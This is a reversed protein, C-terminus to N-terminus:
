QVWCSRALSTFEAITPNKFDSYRSRRALSFSVAAHRPGWVSAADTGRAVGYVFDVDATLVPDNANSLAPLQRTGYLSRLALKRVPRQHMTTLGQHRPGDVNTRTSGFPLARTMVLCAEPVAFISGSIAANLAIANIDAFGAEDCGLM